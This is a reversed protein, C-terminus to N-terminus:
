EGLKVVNGDTKVIAQSPTTPLNSPAQPASPTTPYLKKLDEKIPALIKIKLEKAIDTAVTESIQMNKQLYSELERPHLESLLVKALGLSIQGWQAASLKNEKVITEITINTKESFLADQISQPAQHYRIYRNRMVPDKVSQISKILEPSLM